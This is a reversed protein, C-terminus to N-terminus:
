EEILEQMKKLFYKASKCYPHKSANEITFGNSLFRKTMKNKSKVQKIGDSSFLDNIEDFPLNVTREPFLYSRKTKLINNMADYDALFLAEFAKPIIIVFQDNSFKAVSQKALSICSYNELDTIIFIKEAGNRLLSKIHSDVIGNNKEINGRGGADRAGIFEFGLKELFEIFKESKLVTAETEGEGIFGLKSVM